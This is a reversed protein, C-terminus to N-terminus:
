QIVLKRQLTASGHQINLLYVGAAMQSVDITSTHVVRTVTRGEFTRIEVLDPITSQGILINVESRTPNPFVRAELEDQIAGKIGVTLEVYVSDSAQCGNDGTVTLSYLGPGTILTSPDTSGTSWLYSAFGTPATLPVSTIFESPIFVTDNDFSFVPAPSDFGITATAVNQCGFDDTVTVSHTGPALNTVSATTEGNDWVYSYPALGGSPTVTATGDSTNSCSANAVASLPLDLSDLVIVQITNSYAAELCVLVSVKRRFYTTETLGVPQYATDGNAGPASSWSGTATSDQWEYIYASAGLSGNANGSSLFAAPTAGYCVTDVTQALSVLPILGMLAFVMTPWAISKLKEKM